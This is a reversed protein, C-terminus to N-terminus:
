APNQGVKVCEDNLSYIFPSAAPDPVSIVDPAIRVLTNHKQHLAIADRHAHGSWVSWVRWDRTCLAIVPSPIDRVLRSHFENHLLKLLVLLLM